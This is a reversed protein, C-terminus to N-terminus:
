TGAYRRRLAAVIAPPAKDVSGSDFPPQPDYEIQLQVTRAFDDGALKAALVLAMDIGSSVGASTIYKGQEVVRRSTPVAGYGRLRELSAWHTTAEKGALLGAAALLLAGTCVSVTWQTTADVARIWALTPEDQELARTGFGGPVVLLDAAAVDAFAHDAVLGLNGLGQAGTPTAVADTRVVGRERAVFRVSAGPLRQLVEFPGVIDLATIGDFLLCAIVM